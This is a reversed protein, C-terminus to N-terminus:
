EYEQTQKQEQQAIHERQHTINALKLMLESSRLLNEGWSFGIIPQHTLSDLFPLRVDPGLLHRYDVTIEEEPQLERLAFIFGLHWLASPTFSHNVYCEDPWDPSITCHEEFWRISSDAHPHDPSDTLEQLTITANIHTPAIIVKGMMVTQQAFLGMGANPILSKNVSYPICIM